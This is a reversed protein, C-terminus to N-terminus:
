KAKASIPKARMVCYIGFLVMPASLLQGMTAGMFLFGLHADPERFFEDAIRFVGYGILFVGTLVGPRRRILENRSLVYLIGFLVPGELFAQYLQSPHRPIDGGGPFVMAWPVNPAVRGWLEGNIFNGIRVSAFAIPISCAVGDSIYWQYIKYKRAFLMIGLIVGLLGGHFSMGGNWTQLIKIPDAFYEAPKYFLVYGMRGGLVAGLMIWIFFDDVQLPTMLAPPKVVYRRM